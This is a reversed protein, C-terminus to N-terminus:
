EDHFMVFVNKNMHSCVNSFLWIFAVLSIQASFKSNWFVLCRAWQSVNCVCEEGSNEFRHCATPRFKQMCFWQSICTRHGGQNKQSFYKRSNRAFDGTILRHDYRDYGLNLIGGNDTGREFHHFTLILFPQQGLNHPVKPFRIQQQIHPPPLTLFM